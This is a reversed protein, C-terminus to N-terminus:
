PNVSDLDVTVQKTLNISNKVEGTKGLLFNIDCKSDLLAGSQEVHM